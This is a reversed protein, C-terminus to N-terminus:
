PGPKVAQQREEERGHVMEVLKRSFGGEDEAKVGFGGAVVRPVGFHQSRRSAQLTSPSNPARTRVWLPPMVGSSNLTQIFSMLAAAPILPLSRKWGMRMAKVPAWEPGSNSLVMGSM